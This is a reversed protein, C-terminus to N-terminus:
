FIHFSLLFFFSTSTPNAPLEAGELGPLISALKNFMQNVNTGDKASTEYFLLGLEKALNEGETPSVQRKDVLDAKNGVLMLKVHEQTLQKLDAVWQRVSGFSARDPFNELFRFFISTVDYVVIAAACDCVYHPILSRFREQGATDWLHLKVTKDEVYMTKSLFDIGVTVKQRNKPGSGFFLLCVQYGVDFTDYIFRNILCTKGVFADGLFVIKYKSAIGPSSAGANHSASEGEMKEM